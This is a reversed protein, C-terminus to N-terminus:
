ILLNYLDAPIWGLPRGLVPARDRSGIGVIEIVQEL